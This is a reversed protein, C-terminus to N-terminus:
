FLVLSTRARVTGNALARAREPAVPALLRWLKYSVTTIWLQFDANIEDLKAMTQEIESMFKLGLHCNQLMVWSGQTVGTSILKRAAPEQGQGLSITRVQKKHKKAKWTGTAIRAAYESNYRMCVPQDMALAYQRAWQLARTFAVLEALNDTTTRVNPTSRAVIQGAAAFTKRRRVYAM